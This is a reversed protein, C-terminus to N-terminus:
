TWHSMGSHRAGASGLRGPPQKGRGTSSGAADRRAKEADLEVAEDYLLEFGGGASRDEGYMSKAMGDEASAGDSPAAPPADATSRRRGSANGSADRSTPVASAARALSAGGTEFFSPPLVIDLVEGILAMKLARDTPTTTSLSPSANVELLWPKLQSDIMIDYGYCEFCHRDNIMANQCSKLSHVITWGIDALLKNAADVGRTGEVYLRLNRMSWKGGHTLSYGDSHKQIAVNTLHMLDNDIDHAENSYNVTTFRAFGHRYVFVKLPRYSTVLVYIRLDFKKGGILLPDNIYRSIVYADRGVMQAARSNAWKKVQALKNILFIGKGQSKSTPKMIWMLSPSKKYEEVFLSFDNPLIFTTPIIDLDPVPQAAASSSGGGGCVGGCLGGGGSSGAAAPTNAEQRDLMTRELEKRYRKINKVMLDKRTLEYHNPFHSVVQNDNLRIGSEASFIAKTGQPSAWYLNWDSDDAARTWGRRAFNALLVGKDHDARWRVDHRSM